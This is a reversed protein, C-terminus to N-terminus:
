LLGLRLPWLRYPYEKGKKIRVNHLNLSRATPSGYDKRNKNKCMRETPRGYDKLNKNKCM